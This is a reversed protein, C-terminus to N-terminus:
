VDGKNAKTNDLSEITKKKGRIKEAKEKSDELSQILFSKDVPTGVHILNSKLEQNIWTYSNAGLIAEDQMVTGPSILTQPGVICYKGVKVKKIILKDQYLLHSFILTHLSTMTFDGIEVFIPDIYGEYAVVKKGIRTGFFNYCIVDVWPMPLARALWIPFYATWFRRHMYKWDKSGRQFVGERPPHLFNLIKLVLTSFLSITIFFLFLNGYINLPILFWEYWAISSSIPTIRNGTLFFYVHDIFWANVLYLVMGGVFLQLIIILTFPTKYVGSSSIYPPSELNEAPEM